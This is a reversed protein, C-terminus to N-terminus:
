IKIISRVLDAGNEFCRLNFNISHGISKDLLMYIAASTIMKVINKRKVACFPRHKRVETDKNRKYVM